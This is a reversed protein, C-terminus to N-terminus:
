SGIRKNIVNYRKSVSSPYYVHKEPTWHLALIPAPHINWKADAIGFSVLSQFLSKKILCYFEVHDGQLPVPLCAKDGPRYSASLLLALVKCLRPYRNCVQRPLLRALFFPLVEPQTATGRAHPEM